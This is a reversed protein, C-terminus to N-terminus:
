RVRMIIWLHIESFQGANALARRDGDQSPSLKHAADALILLPGLLASPARLEHGARNIPRTPQLEGVLPYSEASDFEVSQRRLM